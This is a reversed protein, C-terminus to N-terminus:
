PRHNVLRRLVGNTFAARVRLDLVRTCYCDYCDCNSYPVFRRSRIVACTPCASVTGVFIWFGVIMARVIYFSLFEVQLLPVLSMTDEIDIDINIIAYLNWTDFALIKM